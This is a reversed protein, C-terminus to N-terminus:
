VTEPVEIKRAYELPAQFFAESDVDAPSHFTIRPPDLLDDKKTGEDGLFLHILGETKWTEDDRELHGHNYVVGGYYGLTVYHAISMQLNDFSMPDDRYGAQDFEVFGPYKRCLIAFLGQAERAKRQREMVEYDTPPEIPHITKITPRIGHARSLKFGTHEIAENKAVLSRPAVLRGGIYSGNKITLVLDRLLILNRPLRISEQM